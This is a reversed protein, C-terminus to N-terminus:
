SRRSDQGFSQDIAYALFGACTAFAEGTECEGTDEHVSECAIGNDLETRLLHERGTEQFGCLLSNAISLVWPHPSHACGIEAIPKNAFSYAYGDNRIMALTNQYIPDDAACFAFVPLLQLSGPPEDYVDYHGELDTSWCFFANGDREKVCQRLIAEKIDKARRFLSQSGMREALDTLMRWVLVNDYTLYPYVHMDDTPQLFTRYLEESAHKKTDLIQLIHGIGEQIYPLAFLVVDCTATLYRELALVPACLEDLEFGPELVTGDIYRSHMGVNRIQRTFVYRLIDRAYARDMMLISPFSWLLSDRDWYACSVYYRPSRSTMLVFEETDMTIGSAFFFNFFMNTNCIECLKSDPIERERAALWCVTEQHLTAFGRRYLEKASTAASVEEFGLGLIYDVSAKEGPRLSWEREFSFDISGDANLVHREQVGDDLMPAISFLPFGARMEMVFRHNWNSQVLYKKGSVQKSENVEHLTDAWHGVLGASCTITSEGQNEITLRYVFAREGLPCLVTGRVCMLESRLVFGPIWYHERTWRCGELSIAQGNLTMVPLLLPHKNNGRIEIMGKSGMHLFTIGEIAADRERLTPISLYENGTVQYKEKM